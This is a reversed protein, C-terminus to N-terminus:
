LQFFPVRDINKFEETIVIFPVQLHLLCFSFSLDTQGLIKGDNLENDRQRDMQKKQSEKLDTLQQELKNLFFSAGTLMRRIDNSTTDTLNVGLDLIIDEIEELDRELAEIQEEEKIVEAKLGLNKM